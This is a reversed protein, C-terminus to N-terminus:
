RKKDLLSLDLYVYQSMRTKLVGGKAEKREGGELIEEGLSSVRGISECAYSLCHNKESYFEKYNSLQRM